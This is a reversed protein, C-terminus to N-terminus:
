KNVLKKIESISLHQPVQIVGKPTNIWYERTKLNNGEFDYTEVVRSHITSNELEMVTLSRLDNIDLAKPEPNAIIIVTTLISLFIGAIVILMGRVWMDPKKKDPEVDTAKPKDKPKDESQEKPDPDVIEPEGEVEPKVVPQTLAQEIQLHIAAYDSAEIERSFDKDKDTPDEPANERNSVFDLKVKKSSPNYCSIEISKEDKYKFDEEDKDVVTEVVLVHGNSLLEEGKLFGNLVESEEFVKELYAASPNIVNSM